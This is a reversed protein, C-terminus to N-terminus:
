ASARGDSSSLQAIRHLITRRGRTAVEYRRVADLEDARLSGLRQVVQSAALTDYGPIPLSSASPAPPEQPPLAQGPSAPPTAAARPQRPRPTRDTPAAAGGPRRRPSTGNGGAVPPASPPPTAQPRVSPGRAGARRPEATVRPDPPIPPEPPASPEPTNSTAKGVRRQAEAITFKGIMRAVQLQNAVREKGKNALTPFEEVVTVAIGIPVYVALELLKEQLTQEDAM